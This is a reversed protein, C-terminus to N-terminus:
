IVLNGAMVIPVLHATGGVTYSKLVEHFAQWLHQEFNDSTKWSVPQAETIGPTAWACLVSKVISSVTGQQLVLLVQGEFQLDKLQAKLYAEAAQMSFWWHISNGKQLGTGTVERPDSLVLFLVAILPDTGVLVLQPMLLQDLLTGLDLYSSDVNHLVVQKETARVIEVPRSHKHRKPIVVQVKKWARGPVRRSNSNGMAAM